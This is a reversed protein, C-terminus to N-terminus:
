VTHLGWVNQAFQEYKGKMRDLERIDDMTLGPYYRCVTYLLDEMGDSTKPIVAYDLGALMGPAYLQGQMYRSFAAPGYIQGALAKAIALSDEPASICGSSIYGRRELEQQEFLGIGGEPFQLIAKLRDAARAMIHDLEPGPQRFLEALQEPTLEQRAFVAATLTDAYDM